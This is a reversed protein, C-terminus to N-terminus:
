KLPAVRVVEVRKGPTGDGRQFAIHKVQVMLPGAGSLNMVSWAGPVNQGVAARIQGLRINKDPGFDLQYTGPLFDLSIQATCTLKERGLQTRVAENNLVFPCNFKTMKGPQGARSGKKYTFRFEEFNDKTVQDIMAQYEGEPILRMETELPADITSQIFADPDFPLDFTADQPTNFDNM